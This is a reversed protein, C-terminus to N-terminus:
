MVIDIIIVRVAIASKSTVAAGDAMRTRAVLVVGVGFVCFLGLCCPM